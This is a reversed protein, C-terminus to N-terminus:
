PFTGFCSLLVPLVILLLQSSYSSFDDHLSIRRRGKLYDSAEIDFALVIQNTCIAPM